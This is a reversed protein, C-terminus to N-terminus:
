LKFWITVIYYIGIGIFLVAVAKRFWFEFTKIRQYLNGVGSLSFAILWAFLIVPIGTAVAFIVPLHLGSTSVTLPILM